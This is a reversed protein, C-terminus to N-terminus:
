RVTCPIQNLRLKQVCSSELSIKNVTVHLCYIARKNSLCHRAFSLDPFHFTGRFIMLVSVKIYSVTLLAHCAYAAM